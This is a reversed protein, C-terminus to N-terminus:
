LDIKLNQRCKGQIKKSKSAIKSIKLTTTDFKGECRALYGFNKNALNKKLKVSFDELRKALNPTKVTGGGWIGWSFAGASSTRTRDLFLCGSALM